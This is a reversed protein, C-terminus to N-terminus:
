SAPVPGSDHGSRRRSRALALGGLITGILGLAVAVVAGAVGNGTGLGGASNVGHVGGAIVSLPGLVVAVIARTRGTGPRRYRALALGGAVASILGLVAAATPVTRGVGVEYGAALVPVPTMAPAALLDLVTM